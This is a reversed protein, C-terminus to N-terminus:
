YRNIITHEASELANLVLFLTLPFKCKRYQLVTLMCKVNGTLRYNFCSMIGEAKLKIQPGNIFSSMDWVETFNSHFM